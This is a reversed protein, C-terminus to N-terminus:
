RFFFLNPPLKNINDLSYDSNKLKRINIPKCSMMVSIVCFGEKNKKKHIKIRIRLKQELEFIPVNFNCIDNGLHYLGKGDSIQM